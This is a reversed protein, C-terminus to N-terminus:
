KEDLNPSKRVFDMYSYSIKYAERPKRRLPSVIIIVYARSKNRSTAYLRIWAM